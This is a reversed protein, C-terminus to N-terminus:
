CGIIDTVDYNISHYVSYHDYKPEGNSRIKINGHVDYQAHAPQLQNDTFGFLKMKFDHARPVVVEVPKGTRLAFLKFRLKAATDVARQSIGTKVDYVHIIEDQENYIVFDPAYTIGRQNMGGVAFKDVVKFSQHVKFKYGSREVYKVFFDREKISDFTWEKYHVKKGFHNM